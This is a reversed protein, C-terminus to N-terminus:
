SGAESPTHKSDVSEPRAGPRMGNAQRLPNRVRDARREIVSSARLASLRTRARPRRVSNERAQAHAYRALDARILVDLARTWDTMM